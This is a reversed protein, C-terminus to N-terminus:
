GKETQKVHQPVARWGFSLDSIGRASVLLRTVFEPKQTFVVLFFYFLFRPWPVLYEAM